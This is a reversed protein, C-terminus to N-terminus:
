RKIDFSKELYALSEKIIPNSSESQSFEEFPNAAGEEESGPNMQNVAENSEQGGYMKMQLNQLFVSNLITHKKPDYKVGEFSEFQKEFSTIGAKLAADINKIKSEEDELDIGTFAFEFEADIESVIYRTIFKQLFILLPKLGKDRSHELRQKQGDQGFLNSAKSLNFGMESPDITFVACFMVLLFELWENFEMDKNSQQLDVWELDVGEFVPIRHSNNPGTLMRRWTERFDNISDQGGIGSKINIFGKPNSGNKFFNGNYEMGYLLWTTINILIELESEGYGNKLIDSNKNRVGFGLEWPYYVIPDGTVPNRQIENGWVQAYRPLFGNVVDYQREGDKWYRKDITDLIRITSADIAKYALLEFKRNRQLEFTAQDYTLSQDMIQSVFEDLDDFIDWKAPNFNIASPKNKVPAKSNELFEVIFEIRKKDENSLKTKSNDNFISKKRRVTYGEKQEDESFSLFDKIQNIRTTKVMKAVHLDGMRKLIEFGVKKQDRKYGQGTYQSGYPDFLYARTSGQQMKKSSEVLYSQAKMIDEPNGSKLAKDLMLSKEIQMKAIVEDYQDFSLRKEKKDKASM